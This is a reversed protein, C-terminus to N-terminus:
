DMRWRVARSSTRWVNARALMWNRRVGRAIDKGCDKRAMPMGLIWAHVRTRDAQLLQAIQGTTKGQLSQMIAELRTVVRSAGDSYAEQRLAKLRALTRRDGKAFIPLMLKINNYKRAYLSSFPGLVLSFPVKFHYFSFGSTLIARPSM